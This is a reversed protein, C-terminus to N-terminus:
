WLVVRMGASHSEGVSVRSAVRCYEPSSFYAGGRAIRGGSWVSARGSPNIKKERFYPAYYDNCYEYVNGSMDYLGLPNPALLGVAHTEAGSNNGYWGVESLANSGAYVYDRQAPDLLSPSFQGGRAAYEWQSETPLRFGGRVSTINYRDPFVSPFGWQQDKFVWGKPWDWGLVKGRRYRYCPNKGLM